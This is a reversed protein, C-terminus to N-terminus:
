RKYDPFALSYDLSNWLVTWCACSDVCFFHRSNDSEMCTDETLLFGAGFGVQILSFPQARSSVPRWGSIVGM